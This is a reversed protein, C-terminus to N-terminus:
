RRRCPGSIDAMKDEVTSRGGGICVRPNGTDSHRRKLRPQGWHGSPKALPKLVLCVDSLQWRRRHGDAQPRCAPVVENFLGM